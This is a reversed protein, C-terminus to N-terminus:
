YDLSLIRGKTFAFFLDREAVQVGPRLDRQQIGALKM